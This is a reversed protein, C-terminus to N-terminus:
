KGYGEAIEGLMRAPSGDEGAVGSVVIAQKTM